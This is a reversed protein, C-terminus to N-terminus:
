SPTNSSGQIFVVQTVLNSIVQSLGAHGPGIIHVLYVKLFPQAQEFITVFGPGFGPSGVHWQKLVCGSRGVGSLMVTGWEPVRGTSSTFRFLALTVGFSEPMAFWIHPWFIHHSVRPPTFQDLDIPEFM